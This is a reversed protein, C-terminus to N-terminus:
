EKIPKITGSGSIKQDINPSGIYEVNGSGSIKVDLNESAFVSADGSGAIKITANEAKLNKGKFNGSGSIKVIIDKTEGELNIEGVGALKVEVKPTNVALQVNGKGAIKIDLKEGGEFKTLGKVNSKGAISISKLLATNVEVIIPNESVLKYKRKTKIVLSEDELETTIYELLNADAKINVGPENSQAIQIDLNGEVKIKNASLNRKETTYIGNGKIKRYGFIFCSSFCVSIICFAFFYKLM